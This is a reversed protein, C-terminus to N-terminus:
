FISEALGVFPKCIYTNDTVEVALVLGEQQKATNRERKILVSFYQDLLKQVCRSPCDGSLLFSALHTPPGMTSFSSEEIEKSLNTTM